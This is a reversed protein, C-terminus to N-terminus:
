SNIYRKNIHRPIYYNQHPYIWKLPWQIHHTRFIEVKQVMFHCRTFGTGNPWILILTWAGYLFVPVNTIKYVHAQSMNQIRYETRYTTLKIYMHISWGGGGGEGGATCLLNVTYRSGCVGSAWRYSTFKSQARHVSFNLFWCGYTFHACSVGGTCLFPFLMALFLSVTSFGPWTESVSVRFTNFRM